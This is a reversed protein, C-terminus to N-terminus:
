YNIDFKFYAGSDGIGPPANYNDGGSGNDVLYGLYLETAGMHMNLGLDAEVLEEAVAMDYWLGAYIDLMDIPAVVVTASVSNLIDDANGDLGVTLTAISYSGSLGVGYLWDHVPTDAMDYVFGAGADLAFGSFEASYGADFAVLGQDFADYAAGNQFYYVEANLGPIPEKVALGVLLEGAEGAAPTGVPDFTAGTPTMALEIEFFSASLLFDLCWSDGLSLDFVEENGYGSVSQFENADPDDWGWLVKLGVPLGLWMGVDTTVVAKDPANTADLWDMEIVLSNYDDVTAKIDTTITTTRYYNDGFDSISGFTLDGGFTIDSAFMPLALLGLLASLVLLKKM